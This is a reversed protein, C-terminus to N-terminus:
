NHLYFQLGASLNILAITIGTPQWNSGLNGSFGNARQSTVNFFGLLVQWDLKLESALKANPAPVSTM